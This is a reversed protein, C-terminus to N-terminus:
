ALALEARMAVQGDAGSVWLMLGDAADAVNLDFPEGDFVPRDARFRFTRVRTGAVEELAHHMLLTALYPGQVM